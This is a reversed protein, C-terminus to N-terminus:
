SRRFVKDLSPIRSRYGELLIQATLPRAVVLAMVLGAACCGMTAAWLAWAAVTRTRPQQTMPDEATPDQVVGLM